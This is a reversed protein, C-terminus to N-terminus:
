ELSIVEENPVAPPKDTPNNRARRANRKCNKLHKRDRIARQGSTENDYSPYRNNYRRWEKHLSHLGFSRRCLPCAGQTEFRDPYEKGPGKQVWHRICGRCFRHLCWLQVVDQRLPKQCIICEDHDLREVQLPVYSKKESETTSLTSGPSPSSDLSRQSRACEQSKQKAIKRQQRRRHTRNSSKKSIERSSEMM